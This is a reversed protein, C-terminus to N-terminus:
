GSFQRVSSENVSRSAATTVHVEDVPRRRRSRAVDTDRDPRVSETLSPRASSTSHRLASRRSAPSSVGGCHVPSRRLSVLLTTCHRFWDCIASRSFRSALGSDRPELAAAYNEAGTPLDNNAPKRHRRKVPPLDSNFVFRTSRTWIPTQADIPRRVFASVVIDLDSLATIFVRERELCRLFGNRCYRSMVLWPVALSGSRAMRRRGPSPIWRSSRRSRSM